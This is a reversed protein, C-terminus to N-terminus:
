QDLQRDLREQESEVDESPNKVPM